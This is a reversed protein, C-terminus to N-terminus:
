HFNRRVNRRRKRIYCFVREVVKKRYGWGARMKKRGGVGPDTDTQREDRMEKNNRGSEEDQSAAAARGSM